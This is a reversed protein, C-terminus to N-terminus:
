VQAPQALARRSGTIRVLLAGHDAAKGHHHVLLDLVVPERRAIQRHQFGPLRDLADADQVPCAQEPSPREAGCATVPPSPRWSGSNSTWAPRPRASSWATSAKPPMLRWM